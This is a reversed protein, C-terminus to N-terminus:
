ATIRNIALFIEDPTNPHSSADCICIYIAIIGFSADSATHMALPAM